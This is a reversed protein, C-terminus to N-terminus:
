CRMVGCFRRAACRGPWALDTFVCVGEGGRSANRGPWAHDDDNRRLRPRLSLRIALAVRLEAHLFYFARLDTVVPEGSNGAKGARITKVAAGREEQHDPKRAVMGLVVRWRQQWTSILTSIDSGRPKATRM